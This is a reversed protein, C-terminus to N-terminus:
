ANFFVIDSGAAYNKALLKKMNETFFDADVNEIVTGKRGRRPTDDYGIFGSYFIGKEVDDKTLLSEWIEQKDIQKVDESENLYTNNKQM